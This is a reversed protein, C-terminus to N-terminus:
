SEITFGVSLADISTAIGQVLLTRVTLHQPVAVSEEQRGRLSEYVMKGGIYALLALAFYPIFAQLRSFVQVVTRVCIWGIMPMLFQFCAFTGAM